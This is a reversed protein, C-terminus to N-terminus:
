AAGPRVVIGLALWAALTDVAPTPRAQYVQSSCAHSISTDACKRSQMTWANVSSAVSRACSKVSACLRGGSITGSGESATVGCRRRMSSATM